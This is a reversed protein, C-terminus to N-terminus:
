KQLIKDSIMEDLMADLEQAVINHDKFVIQNCSDIGM